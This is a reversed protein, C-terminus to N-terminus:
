RKALGAPLQEPALKHKDALTNGREIAWYEEGIALIVRSGSLLAPKKPFPMKRYDIMVIKGGALDDGLRYNITKNQNSDLVMIEPKGQWESLSVIKYTEPGPPPPVSPPTPKPSTPPQPPPDPKKQYPLFFARKTIAAFLSREESILTEGRVERTTLQEQRALKAAGVVLSLFQFDIRVEAAGGVPLFTINEVRQPAIGSVTASNRVGERDEISLSFKDPSIKTIKSTKNLTSPILGQLQVQEGTNFMHNNKTYVTWQNGTRKIGKINQKRLSGTETNNKSDDGFLLRSLWSRKNQQDAGTSNAAKMGIAMPVNQKDVPLTLTLSMPEPNTDTNIVRFVGNYSSPFERSVPSEGRIQVIQGKEFSHPKETELTLRSGQQLYSKITNRPISPAQELLFMLDIIKPLPGQGSVSYGIQSAGRGQRGQPGRSTLQTAKMPRRTFQDESLGSAKIAETLYVGMRSIAESEEMSFVNRSIAALYHKDHETLTKLKELKGVRSEYTNVKSKATDQPLYIWPVITKTIFVWAVVLGIGSMLTTKLNM